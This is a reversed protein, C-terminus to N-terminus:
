LLSETEFPFPPKRSTSARVILEPPFVISAANTAEGDRLLCAVAAEAMASLPQRLSTMPPNMLRALFLDDIGVMAVDRPISLGQERLGAALGIALLDNMAILATPRQQQSALASSAEVGLEAIMDDGYQNQPLSIEYVQAVSGLGHREVASLFGKLRAVRAATQAPGTVYTIRRHGQAVLHDVALTTAMVNDVTVVHIGPKAAAADGEFAVVSLGRGVLESLHEPNLLSSGTIIGRVGLAMLDQAFQKEKQPDRFTNCLIVQHSRAQAAHQIAMAIAGFFPNAVAPVLLGITATKGTKLQLAVQSPRYDLEAVAAQIRERTAPTMKDLRDNLYNSVSSASVGAARAVDLITAM